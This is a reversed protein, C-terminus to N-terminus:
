RICTKNKFEMITRAIAAREIKTASDPFSIPIYVKGDAAKPWKREKINIVDGPPDPIIDGEFMDPDFIESIISAVNFDENNAM